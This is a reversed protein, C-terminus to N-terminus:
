VDSRWRVEISFRYPRNPDQARIEHRTLVVNEFIPVSKLRDVFEIMHEATKAEAQLILMRMRGNPELAILAVQAPMVSEVAEFLESWPLNLQVVAVNIARVRDPPVAAAATAPERRQGAATALRIDEHVRVLEARTAGYNWAAAGMAAVAVVLAAHAASVAREQPAFQIDLPKM